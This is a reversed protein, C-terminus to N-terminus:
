GGGGRGGRGGGFGRRGGDLGPFSNGGAPTLTQRVAGTTVNTVVETGEQVTGDLAQLLETQQGDTIGLRVRVRQLKSDVNLWV